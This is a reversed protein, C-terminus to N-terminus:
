ARGYRQRRALRRLRRLYQGRFRHRATEMWAFEPGAHAEYYSNEADERGGDADM